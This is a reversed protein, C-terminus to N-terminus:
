PPRPSTGVEATHSQPAPHNQMVPDDQVGYTILVLDGGRGGAGTVHRCYRRKTLGLWLWNNYIGESPSIQGWLLSWSVAM